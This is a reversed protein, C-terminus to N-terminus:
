ITYFSCNLNLFPIWAKSHLVNQFTAKAICFSHANNRGRMADSELNTKNINQYMIKMAVNIVLKADLYHYKEANCNCLSLKYQLIPIIYTYYQGVKEAGKTACFACLRGMFITLGNNM